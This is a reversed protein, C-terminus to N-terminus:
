IKEWKGNNFEYINQDEAVLAKLGNEKPYIRNDWSIIDSLGDLEEITIAVIHYRKNMVMDIEGMAKMQNWIIEAMEDGIQGLLRIARDMEDITHQSYVEPTMRSYTGQLFYRAMEIAFFKDEARHEYDEPLDICPRGNENLKIEYEIKLM